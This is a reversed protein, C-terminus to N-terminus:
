VLSGTITVNGQACIEHGGTTTGADNSVITSSIIDCSGTAYGAVSFVAIGGGGRYGDIGGDNSLTNLTITSNLVTADGSYVFIGGGNAGAKNSIITTGTIIPNGSKVSMGGGMDHAKNGAIRCNQIVSPETDDNILVGGGCTYTSDILTGRGGTITLDRLTGSRLVVTSYAGGNADIVTSGGFGGALTIGHVDLSATTTYTGAKLLVLSGSGAM